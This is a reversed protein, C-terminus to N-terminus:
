PMVPLHSLSPEALLRWRLQKAAKWSDRIQFNWMGSLLDFEVHPLILPRNCGEFVWMSHAVRLAFVFFVDVDIGGLM